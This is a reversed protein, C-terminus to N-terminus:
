LHQPRDKDLPRAPMRSRASAGCSVRRYKVNHIAPESSRLQKGNPLPSLECLAEERNGVIGAATFVFFGSAGCGLDAVIKKEEVHAEKLILDVDILKNGTSLNEM